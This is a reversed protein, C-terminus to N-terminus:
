GQVIHAYIEKLTKLHLEEDMIIRSIVSSVTCEGLKAVMSRYLEIAKMEGNIDDLLMQKPTKSYSVYSSSFYNFKHPPMGVFIPDVGLRILMDGILDLHYMEAVFISHYIKAIDDMDGDEFHLSHYVYQLVATLESGSAAYAPSIIEATRRDPTIDDLSPFPIDVTMPGLNM